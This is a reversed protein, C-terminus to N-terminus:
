SRTRHAIIIVWNPRPMISVTERFSAWFTLRKANVLLTEHPWTWGGVESVKRAARTIFTRRGSHSSCGTMHLHAYLKHFWKTISAARFTM